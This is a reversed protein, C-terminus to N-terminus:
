PLGIRRRIGWELTLLVLLIVFLWMSKTLDLETRRNEKIFTNQIHELVHPRSEWPYFQGKSQKAISSLLEENLSVNNLEIQSQLVTFLGTQESITAGDEFILVYQYQGPNSAWLQGEWRERVPNYHLPTSNVKQEDKYVTIAAKSTHSTKGLRNGSVQILEGQQYIEKNLRFYMDKDGQTRMLWSFLGTWLVQALETNASGTMKYYVKYFDPSTWLITRFGDVDDLLLLPADQHASFSLVKATKSDSEVLVPISLPPLETQDVSSFLIDKEGMLAKSNIEDTFYWLVEEEMVQKSDSIRFFPYMTKANKENLDPGMIWALSSKQASLKKAFIRQWTSTLTQTPFNDLIILDYPTEWFSKLDPRFKNGFQIYHDLQIRDMKRIIQKVVQTNFCPSGTLLAVRYKDKLVTISFSQRNNEVNVEEKFSSVKVQYAQKGMTEPKFRFRVDTNAANGQVSVFRSGIMKDGSLLTVNVRGSKEGQVTIGVKAEVMEGKIAVTPVDISNITVDVLSSIEGIGIIYIPRNIDSILQTPDIGQTVQGDTIIISGTLESENDKIHRIVNGIDTTSGSADLNNKFVHVNDAFQYTSLDIGEEEIQQQLDAIGMNISNLTNSKQNGVSMSNDLYLNWGLTKSQSYNRIFIPHLLSGILLLFILGRFIIPYASHKQNKYSILNWIILVSAALLLWWFWADTNNQLQLDM